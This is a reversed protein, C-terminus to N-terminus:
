CEENACELQRYIENWSCIKHMKTNPVGKGPRGSYQRLLSYNAGLAAAPPALDAVIWKQMKGSYSLEVASDAMVGM